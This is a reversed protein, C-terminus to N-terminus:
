LLSELAAVATVITAGMSIRYTNEIIGLNEELVMDSELEWGPVRHSGSKQQAKFKSEMEAITKKTANSVLIASSLRDKFILFEVRSFDYFDLYLDALLSPEEDATQWYFEICEKKSM